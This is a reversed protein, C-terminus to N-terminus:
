MVYLIQDVVQPHLICERILPNRRLLLDAGRGYTNSSPVPTQHQEMCNDESSVQAVATLSHLNIYTVMTSNKKILVQCGQLFITQCGLRGRQHQLLVLMGSPTHPMQKPPLCPDFAEGEQKRLASTERM